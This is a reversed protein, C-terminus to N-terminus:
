CTRPSSPNSPSSPLLSDFGHTLPPRSLREGHDRLGAAAQRAREGLPAVRAMLRPAILTVGGAFSALAFAGLLVTSWLWLAMSYM